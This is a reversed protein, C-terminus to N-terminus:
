DVARQLAGESGGTEILRVTRDSIQLYDAAEAITIYRRTM